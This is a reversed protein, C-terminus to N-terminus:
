NVLLYLLKIKKSSGIKAAEWVPLRWFLRFICSIDLMARIDCMMLDVVYNVVLLLLVLKVVKLSYNVVLSVLVLAIAFSLL